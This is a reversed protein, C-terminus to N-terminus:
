GSGADFPVVGGEELTIQVIEFFLEVEILIVGVFACTDSQFSALEEGPNTSWRGLSARENLRKGTADQIQLYVERLM